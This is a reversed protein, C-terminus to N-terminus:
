HDLVVARGASWITVARNAVAAHGIPEALICGRNRAWVWSFQVVVNGRQVVPDAVEIRLEALRSAAVFSAAAVNQLPRPCDTSIPLLGESASGFPSM